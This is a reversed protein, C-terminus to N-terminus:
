FAPAPLARIAPLWNTFRNWSRVMRLRTRRAHEVLRGPTTFILFRLRKPRAKLLEPSLALRKLGTLVNHAIVTM